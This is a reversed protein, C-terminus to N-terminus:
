QQAMVGKLQQLLFLDTSKRLWGYSYDLSGRVIIHIQKSKSGAQVVVTLIDVTLIDEKILNTSKVDDICKWITGQFSSWKKQGFIHKSM